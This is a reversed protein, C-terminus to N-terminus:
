SDLVALTDGSSEMNCTIAPNFIGIVNNETFELIDEDSKVATGPNYDEDIVIPEADSQFAQRVSQQYRSRPVQQDSETVLWDAYIIPM